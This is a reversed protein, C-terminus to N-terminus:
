LKIKLLTSVPALPFAPFIVMSVLLRVRLLPPTILLKVEPSASPPSNLISVLLRVRLLPPTILLKVEPSASAPVTVM